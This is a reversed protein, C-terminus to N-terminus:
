ITRMNINFTSASDPGINFITILGTQGSATQFAVVDGDNLHNVMTNDTGNLANTIDSASATEYDLSVKVFRTKNLKTWTQVGYNTNNFVRTVVEDSPAAITVGNIVGDFFMFDVNQQEQNAEPLLLVKNQSVSYSSGVSNLMNFGLLINNQSTPQSKTKVLFEATTTRNRKDTAEVVLVIDSTIDSLTITSEFKKPNSFKTINKSPIEEGNVKKKFYKVEKLKAAANVVVLLDKSSGVDVVDETANNEGFTIIPASTNRNCGIIGLCVVQTAVVLHVFKKM